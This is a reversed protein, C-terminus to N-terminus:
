IAPGEKPEHQAVGAARANRASVEARPPGAAPVTGPLPAAAQVPRRGIKDVTFAALLYDRFAASRAFIGALPPLLGSSM